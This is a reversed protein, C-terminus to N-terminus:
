RGIGVGYYLTEGWAVDTLMRWPDVVLVGKGGNKLMAPSLAFRQDPLTLIVAGADSVCGQLTDAYTISDGLVSRAAGYTEPRDYVSVPFKARLFAEVIRIGQSEEIVTTDCKYSLGLVAVSQIHPARNLIREVLTDVFARNFADTSEQIIPSVGHTKASAILALNDRPFCPGGYGMGGKLYLSGIRPDNGIANTVADVNAGPIRDCLTALMNAYAIKTTVFTNVALKAIEADIISMRCMPPSTLFFCSLFAELEAGSDKDHQGILAFHPHLMDRIVSGLAVFEPGYCFGFDAGCKKRSARELTPIISQESSGPSVTSSLIVLHKTKAHKLGEGIAVAASEVLTTSFAGSATSPTPVLIFSADSRCISDATQETVEYNEAYRSLYEALEPEDYPSKKKAVSALVSHNVDVGIVYFGRSAACALFPLGLKGLGIVSIIKM